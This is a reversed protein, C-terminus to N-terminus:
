PEIMDYNECRDHWVFLGRDHTITLVTTKSLERLLFPMVAAILSPDMASTPEDLILTTPMALMVRALQLCQQQGLSLEAQWDRIVDLQDIFPHLQCGGLVEQYRQFSYIAKTNPYALVAKLSAIPLYPRQPVVLLQEPRIIRGKAFPWNGLLTHVLLSKGLGTRGCLIVKESPNVRFNFTALRKQYTRSSYLSVQEFSLLATTQRILRLQVPLSSRISTMAEKFGSLRRITAYLATLWLIREAFFLVAQQVQLFAHGLRYLTGLSIVGAFFEPAAMMYPLITTLNSCINFSFMVTLTYRMRNKFNEWLDNFVQNFAHKEAEQSQYCAVASRNERLRMLQYRFDAEIQQHCYNQKVLPHSLGVSIATAILAYALTFWCMYGQITLYSGHGLPVSLPPSLQWLVIGFVIFTGLQSLFEVFLRLSTETLLTCDEAIRQDPNDSSVASQFLKFFVNQHLWDHIFQQSLSIRWRFALVNLLIEKTMYAGAILLVLPIFHWLTHYFATRNLQQLSDFFEGQWINLSFMAYIFLGNTIVIGTLLLCAVVKEARWLSGIGM